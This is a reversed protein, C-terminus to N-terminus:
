SYFYSDCNKQQRKEIKKSANPNSSFTECKSLQCAVIRTVRGAKKKKKAKLVKLIADQPSSAWAIKKSQSRTNCGHAVVWAWSNNQQQQSIQKLFPLFLAV